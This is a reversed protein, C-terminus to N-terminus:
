FRINIKKRLFTLGDSLSNRLTQVKIGLEQAVISPRKGDVYVMKIANRSSLRPIQDIADIIDKKLNNRAQLNEEEIWKTIADDSESNPIDQQLDLEYKQYKRHSKIVKVKNLYLNRMLVFLYNYLKLDAGPPLSERKQWITAFVDQCLDKAMETSQTSGFAEKFLWVHYKNFIAAFAEQDGKKLANILEIDSSKIDM